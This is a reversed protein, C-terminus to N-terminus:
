TSQNLKEKLALIVMESLNDPAYIFEFEKWYPYIFINRVWLGVGTHLWMDKEAKVYELTDKDLYDMLANVMSDIFAKQSSRDIRYKSNLAKQEKFELVEGVEWDDDELIDENLM